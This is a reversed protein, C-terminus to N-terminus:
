EDIAEIAVKTSASAWVSVTVPWKNVRVARTAGAAQAVFNNEDDDDAATGDLRYAIYGGGDVNLILLGEAPGNIVVDQASTTATVTASDQAM